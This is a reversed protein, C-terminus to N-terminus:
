TGQRIACCAVQLSSRCECGKLASSRVLFSHVFNILDKSRVQWSFGVWTQQSYHPTKVVLCSALERVDKIQLIKSQL